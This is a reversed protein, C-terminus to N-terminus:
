KLVRLTPGIGPISGAVEQKGLWCARGVSSNRGRSFVLDSFLQIMNTSSSITGEATRQPVSRSSHEVSRHIIDKM